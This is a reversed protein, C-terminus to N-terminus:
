VELINQVLKIHNNNYSQNCGPKSCFGFQYLGAYNSSFDSIVFLESVQQLYTHNQTFISEDNKPCIRYKNRPTWFYHNLWKKRLVALPKSYLHKLLMNSTKWSKMMLLLIRMQWKPVKDLTKINRFNEDSRM